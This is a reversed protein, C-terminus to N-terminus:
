VSLPKSSRVMSDDYLSLKVERDRETNQNFDHDSLLVGGEWLDPLIKWGTPTFVFSQFEIPISITMNKIAPSKFEM